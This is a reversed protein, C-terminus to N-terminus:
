EFYKAQMKFYKAYEKDTSLLTEHNGSEKLEGKSFFLIKDVAKSLSFSHSVIFVLSENFDNHICKYFKDESIPDLASTPEDLLLLDTYNAIARAIAVKQMEGGSLVEGESEFEKTIITKSGNKLTKHKENFGSKEISFLYRIKDNENQINDLLINKELETAFVIFDQRITSVRQKFEEPDFYNINIDNIRIEGELPEYSRMILKVLTSKGAGNDGLVAIKQGRYAEFNVHKLAYDLQDQYRFSVNSFEIKEIVEPIPIYKTSLSNKPEIKIFKLIDDLYTCEEMSSIYFDIINKFSYITQNFTIIIVIANEPSVDGNIVRITIYIIAGFFSIIQFTYDVVFQKIGIKMGYKKILLNFDSIFREFQYLIVNRIKTTRIEKAYDKLYLVRQIYDIRRNVNSNEKNSSIRLRNIYPSIIWEVILPFLVFIIIIPDTIFIIVSLTSLMAFSSVLIEILRFFSSIRVILNNSIFFYEDYFESNEFRELPIDNIKRYLQNSFHRGVKQISNDAYYQSYYGELTWIGIQLILLGILILVFQEIQFGNNYNKVIYRLLYVNFVIESLPLAIYVLITMPIRSRQAKNVEKAFSFLIKIMDNIRMINKMTKGSKLNSIVMQNYTCVTSGM